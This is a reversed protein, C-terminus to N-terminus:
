FSIFSHAVLYQKVIKRKESDPCISNLIKHNECTDAVPFRTNKCKRHPEVTITRAADEIVYNLSQIPQNKQKLNSQYPGGEILTSILKPDSHQKTTTELTYIVHGYLRQYPLRKSTSYEISKKPTSISREPITRNSLSLQIAKDNNDEREQFKLFIIPLRIDIKITISDRSKERM